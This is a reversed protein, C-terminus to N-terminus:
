MWIERCVDNRLSGLHYSIKLHYPLVVSINILLRRWPPCTKCTSTPKLTEWNCTLSRSSPFLVNRTRPGKVVLPLALFCIWTLVVSPGSINAVHFGMSPCHSCIFTLPSPIGFTNSLLVGDIFPTLPQPSLWPQLLLSLDWSQKQPKATSHEGMEISDLGM